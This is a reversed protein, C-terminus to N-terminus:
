VLIYGLKEPKVLNYVINDGLKHEEQNEGGGKYM